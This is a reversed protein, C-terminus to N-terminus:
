PSAGLAGYYFFWGLGSTFLLCGVAAHQATAV